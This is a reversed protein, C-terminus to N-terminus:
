HHFIVVEGGFVFILFILENKPNNSNFYNTPLKLILLTPYTLSKEAAFIIGTSNITWQALSKNSLFFVCVLLYDM